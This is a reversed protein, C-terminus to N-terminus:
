HLLTAYYIAGFIHVISTTFLVIGIPIHVTHWVALLRRAAALSSMQQKVLRQQDALQKLQAVKGRLNPDLKHQERWWTLQYNINSLIRGFISALSDEQNSPLFALQRALDQVVAPQSAAWQALEEEIVQIRAGLERAQIEAGDATRPVSTYIYRGIFGSIVIIITLLFVIGALGNFKWSTHLLVLFPGVLGTFIHFQLWSSMKGWRASRSRKRLSYLTETFIMLLFGLIGLSHGFFGRAAPVSGTWAVVALYLLTILFIALLALWLERSKTLM